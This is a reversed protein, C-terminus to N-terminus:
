APFTSNPLSRQHIKEAKGRSCRKSCEESSNQFKRRLGGRLLNGHTLFSKRRLLERGSTCTGMRLDNAEKNTKIKKGVENQSAM